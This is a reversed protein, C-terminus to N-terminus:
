QDSGPESKPRRVTVGPARSYWLVLLRLAEQPTLGSQECADVFRQWPEDAMRFTRKDNGKTPV